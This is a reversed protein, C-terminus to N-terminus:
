PFSPGGARSEKPRFCAFILNARKRQHDNAADQRRTATLSVLKVSLEPMRGSKGQPPLMRLWAATNTKLPPMTCIMREFFATGLSLSTM